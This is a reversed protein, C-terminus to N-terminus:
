ARRTTATTAASPASRWTRADPLPRTTETPSGTATSGRPCTTRPRAPSWATWAASAAPPTSPWATARWRRRRRRSRRRLQREHRHRGDAPRRRLAHHAAADSAGKGFARRLRVATHGFGHVMYVCDPRIRETAKVKCATASSATRTGCGCAARRRRPGARRARRREALGRERGDDRALVPQDAHPRVLAGARPRLAAPLM